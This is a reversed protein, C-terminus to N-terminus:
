DIYKYIEKVMQYDSVVDENCYKALEDLPVENIPYRWLNGGCIEESKCEIGLAANITELSTNTRWGGFKWLNMSDLDNLEWPKLGLKNFIAPVRMKNIIYRKAMYPIDCSIINHGALSYGLKHFRDFNSAIKELLEVENLSTVNYIQFQGGFEYGFSVSIVHSFEPHLAAIEAYCEDPTAYSENDYYHNIFAKQLAPSIENFEKVRHTEIDFFLYKSLDM